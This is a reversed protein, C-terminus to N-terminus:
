RVRGDSCDRQACARRELTVAAIAVDDQPRGRLMRELVQDCLEDLPRGALEAVSTCLLALGDDLSWDRREVLGDTYLVVTDGTALEVAAEARDAGADVGLMLDPVAGTLLTVTGDARLLLPPPHGANAWRLRAPGAGPASGPCRELRAVVATALTGTHMSVM